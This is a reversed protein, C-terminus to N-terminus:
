PAIATVDAAKLPLVILGVLGVGQEELGLRRAAAMSLDIIRGGVYPGRDTIRLEVSRGNALNEVRLATGLPLFRHAATLAHMDFPTGSATRRGQHRPGYWSAVGIEDYRGDLALKDARDPSPPEVPARDDTGPSSHASLEAAHEEAACLGFAIGLAIVGANAYSALTSRPESM